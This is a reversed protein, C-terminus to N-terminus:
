VQSYGEGSPPSSTTTTNPVPGVSSMAAAVPVLMKTSSSKHKNVILDTMQLELYLSEEGSCRDEEDVEGEINESDGLESESYVVEEPILVHNARGPGTDFHSQM